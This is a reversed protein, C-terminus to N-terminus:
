DGRWADQIASRSGRAATATDRCSSFCPQRTLPICACAGMLPRVASARSTARGTSRMVRISSFRTRCRRGTTNARIGCASSGSRVTAAPHRDAASAAPSRGPIDISVTSSLLCASLPNTSASSFTLGSM